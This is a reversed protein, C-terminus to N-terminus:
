LTSIRYEIGTDLRPRPATTRHHVDHLPALCASRRCAPPRGAGAPATISIVAARAHSTPASQIDDRRSRGKGNTASAIVRLYTPEAEIGAEHLADAINSRQVTGRGGLSGGGRNILVATEMARLVSRVAEAERRLM